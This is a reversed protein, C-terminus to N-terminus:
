LLPYYPHSQVCTQPFQHSALGTGKGSHFLSFLSLSSTFRCPPALHRPPPSPSQPLPQWNLLPWCIPGGPLCCSICGLPRPPTLAPLIPCPPWRGPLGWPIQGTPLQSTVVVHSPEPSRQGRTASLPARGSGTWTEAEGRSRAGGRVEARGGIEEETGHANPPAERGRQTRGQVRGSPARACGPGARVPPLPFGNRTRGPTWGFPLSLGDEYEAPLWRALARNAAGLAPNRRFGLM